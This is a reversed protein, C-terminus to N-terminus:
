RARGFKEQLLRIKEEMTQKPQPPVAEVPPKQPRPQQPPKPERRPPQESKERKVQPVPVPKPYAPKAAANAQAAVASQPAKV